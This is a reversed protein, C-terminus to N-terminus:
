ALLDLEQWKCELYENAERTGYMEVIRSPHVYKFTNGDVCLGTYNNYAFNRNTASGPIEQISDKLKSPTYVFLTNADVEMSDPAIENWIESAFYACNEFLGGNNLELCRDSVIELQSTTITITLSATNNDGLGRYAEVNLWTGAHLEGTDPDMLNGWTGVSFTEGSMLTTNCFDYSTSSKNEIVLWAHGFGEDSASSSSSGEGYSAYISLQINGAADVKASNFLCLIFVCFFAIPLLFLSSRKIYKYKKIKM